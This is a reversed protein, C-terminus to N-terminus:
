IIIYIYIYIYKGPPGFLLIGRVHKMGLTSLTIIRRIIVCIIVWLILLNLLSFVHRLHEESFPLSNRNIHGLLVTLLPNIIVKDLGGIGMM